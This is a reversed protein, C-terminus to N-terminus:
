THPSLYKQCSRGSCLWYHNKSNNHNCHRKHESLKTVVVEKVFAMNNIGFLRTGEMVACRGLNKVPGDPTHDWVLCGPTGCGEFAEFKEFPHRWWVILLLTHYYRIRQPYQPQLRSALIACYLHTSFQKLTGILVWLFLWLTERMFNTPTVLINHITKFLLPLNFSLCEM